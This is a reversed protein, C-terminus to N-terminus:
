KTLSFNGTATMTGISEGDETYVEVKKKNCTDNEHIYACSCIVATVLVSLGILYLESISRMVGIAFMIIGIIVLSVLTITM